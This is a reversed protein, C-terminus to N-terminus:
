ARTYVRVSAWFAIVGSYYRMYSHSLYSFVRTDTSLTRATVDNGIQAYSANYVHVPNRKLVDPKCANPTAISHTTTFVNRSILRSIANSKEM